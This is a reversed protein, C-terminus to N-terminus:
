PLLTLIKSEPVGHRLMCIAVYGLEIPVLNEFRLVARADTERGAEMDAACRAALVRLANAKHM